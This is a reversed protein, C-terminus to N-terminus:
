LNHSNMDVGSESEPTQDPCIDDWQCINEYKLILSENLSNISQSLQIFNQSM